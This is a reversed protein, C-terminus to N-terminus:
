CTSSAYPDKVKHGIHNPEPEEIEITSYRHGCELCERRRRKTYYNNRKIERSDYVKTNHHCVPCSTAM